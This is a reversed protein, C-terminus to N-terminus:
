LGSAEEAVPGLAAAIADCAATVLQLAAHDTMLALPVFEARSVTLYRLAKDRDGSGVVSRLNDIRDALKLLRADADLTRLRDIYARDRAARQAAPVPEKTVDLVLRAVREGFASAVLADDVEPSDEITDHLLAAVLLDVDRSGLEQWLVLAVRVPHEIFPTGEDRTQGDHAHAAFRYACEIREADARDLGAQIVTLASPMPEVIEYMSSM